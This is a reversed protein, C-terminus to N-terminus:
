RGDCASNWFLLRGICSFKKLSLLSMFQMTLFLLPKESPSSLSLSTHPSLVLFGVDDKCYYCQKLVCLMQYCAQTDPERTQESFRMRLAACRQRGSRQPCVFFPQFAIMLQKRTDLQGSACAFHEFLHVNPGTLLAIRMNEYEGQKQSLITMAMTFLFTMFITKLSLANM